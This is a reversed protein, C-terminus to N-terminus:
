RITLARDLQISDYMDEIKSLLTEGELKIYPSVPINEKANKIRNLVFELELKSFSNGSKINYQQVLEEINTQSSIRHIPSKNTVLGELEAIDEMKINLLRNVYSVMNRELATPKLRGKSIDAIYQELQGRANMELGRNVYIETIEEPTAGNGLMFVLLRKNDPIIGIYQKKAIKKKKSANSREQKAKMYEKYEPTGEAKNIRDYLTVLSVHEKGAIQELTLGEKTLELIRKIDINKRKRGSKKSKKQIRKYEEYEPTGEAEKIRNGLTALSVNEKDAIQELTLGQKTLEVIRKMDINKRKRM